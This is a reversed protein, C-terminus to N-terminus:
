PTGGSISLEEAKVLLREARRRALKNLLRVDAGADGAALVERLLSEYLAQNGTKWAYTKAYTVLVLHNKRGTIQLAREFTRQAADLDGGLMPPLSAQLAGLASLGSAHAYAPDIAVARELLERALAYDRLLEPAGGSLVIALGWAAAATSLADLDTAPDTYRQALHARLLVPQGNLQSAADVFGADRLAARWADSSVRARSAGFGAAALALDLEDDDQRMARLSLDRARLAMRMARARLQDAHDLEGRDEALEVEDALYAGAYALYSRALGLMLAPNEPSARLLAESQLIAGPLAAVVLDYDWYAELVPRSRQGLKAASDAALKGFDCGALAAGFLGALVGFWRKSGRRAM